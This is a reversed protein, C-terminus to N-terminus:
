SDYLTIWLADIYFIEYTLTINAVDEAFNMFYKLM